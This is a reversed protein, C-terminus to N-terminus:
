YILFYEIFSLDNKLDWGLVWPPKWYVKKNFKSSGIKTFCFFLFLSPLVVVVFPRNKSHFIILWSIPTCAELIEGSSRQSLNEPTPTKNLTTRYRMLDYKKLTSRVEDFILFLLLPLFSVILFWEIIRAM